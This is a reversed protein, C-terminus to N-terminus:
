CQKIELLIGQNCIIKYSTYCDDHVREPETPTILKEKLYCSYKVLSEFFDRPCFAFSNCGETENCLKKCEEYSRKEGKIGKGEDLAVNTLRGYGCYGTITYCTQKLINSWRPSEFISHQFM